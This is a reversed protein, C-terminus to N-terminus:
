YDEPKPPFRRLTLDVTQRIREMRELTRDPADASGSARWIEQERDGALVTMSVAAAASRAVRMRDVIDVSELETVVVFDPAETVERYGRGTLYDRITSEVDRALSDTVEVSTPIPRVAFTKLAAFDAVHDFWVDTVRVANTSCAAAFLLAGLSALRISM